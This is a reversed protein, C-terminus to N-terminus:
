FDSHRWLEAASPGIRIFSPVGICFWMGIVVFVDFHFSSISNWYPPRKNKNESVPFIGMVWLMEGSASFVNIEVIMGLRQGETADGYHDKFNSKSRGSYLTKIYHLTILNYLFRSRTRIQFLKMRQWYSLTSLKLQGYVENCKAYKSDSRRRPPATTGRRSPLLRTVNHGRCTGFREADYSTLFPQLGSWLQGDSSWQSFHHYYGVAM